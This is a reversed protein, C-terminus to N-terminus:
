QEIYLMIHAGAVGVIQHTDQTYASFMATAPYEGAGLRKGLKIYQIQEGPKIGKSEYVKEGNEDLTMTVKVIYNNAKSNYIDAQGKAKSNEFTIGSAISIDLMGDDVVRDLESQIEGESMNSLLGTKAAPDFFDDDRFSQNKRLVIFCVLVVVAIVVAAALGILGLQRNQRNKRSRSM